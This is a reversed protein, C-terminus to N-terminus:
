KAIPAHNWVRVCVCEHQECCSSTTRQVECCKPGTLFLVLFFLFPYLLMGKMKFRSFQSIARRHSGCSSEVGHLMSWPFTNPQVVSKSQNARLGFWRYLAAIYASIFMIQNSNPGSSSKQGMMQGLCVGFYALCSRVFEKADAKLGHRENSPVGVHLMICAMGLVLMVAARLHNLERLGIIIQIEDLKLREAVRSQIKNYHTTPVSTNIKIHVLNSVLLSSLANQHMGFQAKEFPYFLLLACSLGPLWPHPTAIQSLFSSVHLYPRYPQYPRHRAYNSFITARPRLRWSM